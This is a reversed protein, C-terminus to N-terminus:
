DVNGDESRRWDDWAGNLVQLMEVLVTDFTGRPLRQVIVDTYPEHAYILREEDMHQLVYFKWDEPVNAAVNADHRAAAECEADPHTEASGYLRRDIWAFAAAPDMLWLEGANRDRRGAVAGPISAAYDNLANVDDGDGVRSGGIWYCLTGFQLTHPPPVFHLEVAFLDTTGIIM